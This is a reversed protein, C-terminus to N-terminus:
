NLGEGIACLIAQLRHTVNLKRFISALHTKVTKESIFLDQAIEKNTCGTALHSLVEQERPTLGEKTEKTRVHPNRGKSDAIAEQDFFRSMLKREIWLEGRHVAKIAKTLDSVSSDKSLYGKAGAKLSNFIMAEDSAATLMLAKTKPSKERIPLVVQTGNIKAITIDLLVVDPKLENVVSITQLGNVAEGVIQIGEEQGLILYMGERFLRHDDAIVIRIQDEMGM